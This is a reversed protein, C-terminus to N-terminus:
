VSLYLDFDLGKFIKKVLGFKVKKKKKKKRLKYLDYLKNLFLISNLCLLM